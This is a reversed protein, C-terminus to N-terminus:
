IFGICYSYALGSPVREHWISRCLICLLHSLQTLTGLLSSSTSCLFLWPLLWLTKTM